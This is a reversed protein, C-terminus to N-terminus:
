RRAHAFCGVHIIGPMDKVASDYGAYGDTQLYGSYGELFDKAYEGARTKHYEYWAAKKGPPGGRALWMYSNQTDKRDEEGIVQVTTEDMQIVPGSKVTEKMLGLLPALKVHVQQQWNAMDQRSIDVGIRKFQKEQRYYPLHYEFKHEFIASLLGPSTISRPIMSPPLSAIRVTRRGEDGTGECCRCAYKPRQIQEVYIRQPVFQLRESTEAGIKTLRAGCACTKEEEPIDIVTIERPIRADIPKRGRKGRSYSAVETREEEEQETAGVPESESSFLLQQQDDAPIQEASRMFRKYILLDYREKIELYKNQYNIVDNKLTHIQHEFHEKNEKIQRECNTKIENIYTVVAADLGEVQM